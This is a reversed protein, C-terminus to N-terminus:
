IYTATLLEVFNFKKSQKFLSQPDSRRLKQTTTGHLGTSEKCDPITLNMNQGTEEPDEEKQEDGANSMKLTEEDVVKEDEIVNEKQDKDDVVIVDEDFTVRNTRPNDKTKKKLLKRYEQAEDRIQQSFIFDYDEAQSIEEALEDLKTNSESEHKQVKKSKTPKASAATKRRKPVKAEECENKSIDNPSSFPDTNHEQLADFLVVQPEKGYTLITKIGTSERDKKEMNSSAKEVRKSNLNNEDINKGGESSKDGSKNTDVVPCKGKVNRKLATTKRANIKGKGKLNAPPTKQSPKFTYPDDSGSSGIQAKSKGPSTRRLCSLKSVLKTGISHDKLLKDTGEIDILAQSESEQSSISSVTSEVKNRIRRRGSRRVPGSEVSSDDSIEVPAENCQKRESGDPQMNKMAINQCNSEQVETESDTLAEKTYVSDMDIVRKNSIVEESESEAKGHTAHEDTDVKTVSKPSPLSSAISSPTEYQATFWRNVKRRTDSNCERASADFDLQGREPNQEEGIQSTVSDETISHPVKFSAASGTSNEQKEGTGRNEYRKLTGPQKARKGVKNSNQVDKTGGLQSETTNELFAALNCSMSKNRTFRTNPVVQNDVLGVLLVLFKDWSNNQQNNLRGPTVTSFIGM